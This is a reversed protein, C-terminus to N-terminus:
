KLLLCLTCLFFSLSCFSLSAGKRRSAWEFGVFPLVQSSWLWSGPSWWPGQHAKPVQHSWSGDDSGLGPSAPLQLWSGFGPVGIHSLCRVVLHFAQQWEVWNEMFVVAMRNWVKQPLVYLINCNTSNKVEMKSVLVHLSLSAAHSVVPWLNTWFFDVVYPFSCQVFSIFFACWHLFGCTKSQM